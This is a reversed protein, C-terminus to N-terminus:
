VGYNRSFAKLDWLITSALSSLTFVIMRSFDPSGRPGNAHPTEFWIEQSKRFAREITPTLWSDDNADGIGFIYAEAKNREVRWLTPHADPPAAPDEDPTATVYGVGVAILFLCERRRLLM